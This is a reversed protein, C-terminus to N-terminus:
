SFDKKIRDIAFACAIFSVGFSISLCIIKFGIYYIFNSSNFSIYYILFLTGIISVLLSFYLGNIMIKKVKMDFNKITNTLTKIM